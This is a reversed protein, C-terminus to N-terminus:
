LKMVWRTIRGKPVVSHLWTLASNDTVIQFPNGLLYFRFHEIAFAIALAEKEMAAYNQKRLTLTCSAYSLVRDNGGNDLQALAAGLGANSADTQLM